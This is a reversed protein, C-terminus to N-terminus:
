KQQAYSDIEFIIELFCPFQHNFFLIVISTHIIEYEPKGRSLSSADIWLRDM